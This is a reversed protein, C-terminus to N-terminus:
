LILLTNMFPGRGGGRGRYPLELFHARVTHHAETSAGRCTQDTKLPQFTLTGNHFTSADRTSLGKRRACSGFKAATAQTLYAACCIIRRPNNATAPFERGTDQFGINWRQRAFPRQSSKAPLRNDRMIHQSQASLSTTDRELRITHAM